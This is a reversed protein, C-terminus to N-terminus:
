LETEMWKMLSLSGIGGVNAFVVYNANPQVVMWCAIRWNLVQGVAGASGDYWPIGCEQEFNLDNNADMSLYAMDGTNMVWADAYVWVMIPRSKTNTYVVGFGRSGTEDTTNHPLDDTWHSLNFNDIETKNYVETQNYVETKNYYNTKNGTWLPDTETYSELWPPNQVYSANLNGYFNDATINQATLNSEISYEYNGNNYLKLNGTTDNLEMTWVKGFNQGLLSMQAKGVNDAYAYLGKHILFVPDSGDQSIGKVYSYNIGVIQKLFFDIENNGSITFNNNTLKRYQSKESTWLPDAEGSTNIWNLDNQINSGKIESPSNLSDWYNSSNVNKTSYDLDDTFNSLHTYGRNGLDDTWHSLSFSDIDTKNYYNPKDATWIPDTESGGGSGVLSGNWFLGTTNMFFSIGNSDTFNFVEGSGLQTIWLMPNTGSWKVEEGTTAIDQPSIVCLGAGGSCGQITGPLGGVSCSSGNVVECGNTGGNCTLENNDGDDNDCDMNNGTRTCNGTSGVCQNYAYTGTGFGCSQGSHLECGNPDTYSGDCYFYNTRCTGCSTAGTQGSWKNANCITKRGVNYCSSSRDCWMNGNNDCYPASGDYAYCDLIYGGNYSGSYDTESSATSSPPNLSAPNYCYTIGGSLGCVVDSGSCTQSQASTPCNNPDNVWYSANVMAM